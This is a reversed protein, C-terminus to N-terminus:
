IAGQHDEKDKSDGQRGPNIGPGLDVVVAGGLHDVGVAVAGVLQKEVVEPVPELGHGVVGLLHLLPGGGVLGGPQEDVVHVGAHVGLLDKEALHLGDGHLKELAAVARLGPLVGLGLGCVVVRLGGGSADQGVGVAAAVHLQAPVDAHFVAVGDAQVLPHRQPHNGGPVEVRLVHGHVRHLVELGQHVLDVLGDGGVDDDVDVQGGDGILATQQQFLPRHVEDAALARLPAAGGEGAGKLSGGLLAVDAFKLVQAERSVALPHPHGGGGPDVEGVALKGPPAGAHQAVAVGPHVDFVADKLVVGHAEVEVGGTVVSAVVHVAAVQEPAVAGGDQQLADGAVLGQVELAGAEGTVARVDVVPQTGDLGVGSWGHLRFNWAVRSYPSETMKIAAPAIDLIADAGTAAWTKIVPTIGPIADPGTVAWTKAEAASAGTPLLAITMLIAMVLSLVRDACFIRKM